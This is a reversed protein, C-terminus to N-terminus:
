PLDSISFEISPDLSNELYSFSGNKKIILEQQAMFLWVKDRLVDVMPVLIIAYHYPMQRAHPQGLISRPKIGPTM